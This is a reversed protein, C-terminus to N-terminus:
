RASAFAYSGLMAALAKRRDVLGPKACAEALLGVTSSVRTSRPDLGPFCKKVILEAKEMSSCDCDATVDCNHAVVDAITGLARLYVDNLSDAGTGARSAKRPDYLSSSLKTIVDDGQAFVGPLLFAKRGSAELGARSECATPTTGPPVVIMDCTVRTLNGGLCSTISSRLLDIGKVQLGAGSDSVDKRLTRTGTLEGVATPKAEPAAPKLPAKGGAVKLTGVLKNPPQGCAALMILSVIVVCLAAFRAAFVVTFHAAFRERTPM